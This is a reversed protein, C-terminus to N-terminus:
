ITSEANRVYLNNVAQTIFFFMQERRISCDRKSNIGLEKQYELGCLIVYSRAEEWSMDKWLPNRGM